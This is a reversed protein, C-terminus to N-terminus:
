KSEEKQTLQEKIMEQQTQELEKQLRMVEETLLAIQMSLDLITQNM